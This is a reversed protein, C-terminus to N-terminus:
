KSLVASLPVTEQGEAAETAALDREHMVLDEIVGSLTRPKISYLKNETVTISSSYQNNVASCNYVFGSETQLISSVYLLTIYNNRTHDFTFCAQGIKFKPKNSM